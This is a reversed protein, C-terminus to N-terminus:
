YTQVVTKYQGPIDLKLPLFQGPLFAALPKGDEAALYFSTITDSEPVKRNVIFTRYSEGTITSLKAKSIRGEFTAKWGPSFAEIALSKKAGDLNDKDFYMLKNAEVINLGVPDLKIREITDGVGVEGEELVRFYFGLRGSELIQSYFGEIGMKIALKYCPVRPQTVEFLGSGIRFRDGVHVNEDLMGEVTFNEGFQGFKFDSRDLEHEWYAYNDFSYVYVARFEGGHGVLDAQGDGEINLSKVKVRGQVPEKFIGTRVTKGKSEIEKPLSVNVSLLKM